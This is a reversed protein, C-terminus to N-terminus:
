GKQELSKAYAKIPARCLLLIGGVIFIPILWIYEWIGDQLLIEELSWYHNETLRKSIFMQYFLVIMIGILSFTISKTFRYDLSGIFFGISTAWLYLMMNIAIDQIDYYTFHLYSHLVPLSKICNIILNMFGVDAIGLVISNALMALICGKLFANRNGRISILGNFENSHNHGILFMLLLFCIRHGKRLDIREPIMYAMFVLQIVDIFLPILYILCLTKLDMKYLNKFYVEVQRPM